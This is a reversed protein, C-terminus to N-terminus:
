NYTLNNGESKGTIAFGFSINNNNKNISITGDDTPTIITQSNAQIIEAKLINGKLFDPLYKNIALSNRNIISYGSYFLGVFVIFVIVFLLKRRKKGRQKEKENKM